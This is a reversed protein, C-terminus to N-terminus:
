EGGGNLVRKAEKCTYKIQNKPNKTNRLNKSDKMKSLIKRTKRM